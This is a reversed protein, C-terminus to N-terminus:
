DDKEIHLIVEKELLFKVKKRSGGSSSSSGSSGPSGSGSGGSDSDHGNDQQVSPEQTIDDNEKDADATRKM